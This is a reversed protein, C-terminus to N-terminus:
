HDAWTKIAIVIVLTVACIIIIVSAASLLQHSGVAAGTL